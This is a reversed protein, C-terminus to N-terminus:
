PHGQTLEQMASSAFAIMTECTLKCGSLIWRDRDIRDASENPLRAVQFPPLFGLRMFAECIERYYSMGGKTLALSYSPKKASHKYHFQVLCVPLDGLLKMAELPSLRMDPISYHSNTIPEGIEITGQCATDAIGIARHLHIGPPASLLKGCESCTAANLSYWSNDKSDTFDHYQSRVFISDPM